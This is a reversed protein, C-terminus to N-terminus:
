KKWQFLKRLNRKFAPILFMSIDKSNPRALLFYYIAKPNFNKLAVRFLELNHAKYVRRADVGEYKNVIYDLKNFFHKKVEVLRNLNPRNLTSEVNVNVLYEPVCLLTFREFYRILFEFDQHRIFSEDFGSISNIDKKRMILSSTHIDSVMALVDLQCNGSKDYETEQVLNGNSYKRNKCYAGDFDSSTLLKLQREIKNTLFVDDDDLFCIWYGQAIKLGTNRAASGNLNKEHPVYTVDKRGSYKLMVDKTQRGFESDLGNDDVVIVEISSYTQNLVSDITRTLYESRGYTPIIVSVLKDENM